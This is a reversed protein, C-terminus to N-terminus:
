TPENILKIMGAPAAGTCSEPLISPSSLTTIAVCHCIAGPPKGIAAIAPISATLSMPFLSFLFLLYRHLHVVRCLCKQLSRFASKSGCLILYGSLGQFRNLIKQMKQAAYLATIPKSFAERDSFCLDKQSCAQFSDRAHPQCILPSNRLFCPSYRKSATRLQKKIFLQRLLPRYSIAGVLTQATANIRLVWVFIATPAIM